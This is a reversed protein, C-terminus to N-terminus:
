ESRELHRRVVVRARKMALGLLRTETRGQVIKGAITVSFRYSGPEPDHEISVTVGKYGFRYM